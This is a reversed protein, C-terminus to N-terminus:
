VCRSTYLLCINNLENELGELYQKERSEMQQLKYITSTVQNKVNEVSQYSNNIKSRDRICMKNKDRKIQEVLQYNGMYEDNLVLEVFRSDPTWAFGMLESLKFSIGTRLLSKDCYNALLVWDKHENMGLLPSKEDLKLRYPKKPYTWTANGRGRIRTSLKSPEKGKEKITMTAQVYNEKSDIM